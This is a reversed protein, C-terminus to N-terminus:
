LANEGGAQLLKPIALVNNIDYQKYDVGGGTVANEKESLADLDEWAILCNHSSLCAGEHLSKGHNLPNSLHFKSVPTWDGHCSLPAPLATSVCVPVRTGVSEPSGAPHEREQEQRHPLVCPGM